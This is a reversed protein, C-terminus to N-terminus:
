AKIISTIVGIIVEKSVQMVNNKIMTKFENIHEQKMLKNQNDILNNYVNNTEDSNLFDIIEVFFEINIVVIERNRKYDLTYGLEKSLTELERKIVNNEIGLSIERKVNDYTLKIRNELISSFLKLLQLKSDLNDYKQAINMRMSKIRIDTTKLIKALEYNSYDYLFDKNSACNTCYVILDQLDNKSLTGYGYKQFESIFLDSFKNKENETSLFDILEM